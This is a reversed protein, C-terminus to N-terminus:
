SLFLSPCRVDKLQRVKGMIGEVQGDNQSELENLVADSYQGRLGNILWRGETSRAKGWEWRWGFLSLMGRIRRRLDIGRRALYYGELDMIRLFAMCARRGVIMGGRARDGQIVRSFRPAPTANISEPPASDAKWFGYDALTISLANHSPANPRTSNLAFPQRGPLPFSQRSKILSSTPAPSPSSALALLYPFSLFQGQHWQQQSEGLRPKLQPTKRNSIFM